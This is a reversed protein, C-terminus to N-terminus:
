GTGRHSRNPARGGAQCCPHIQGGLRRTGPTTVFPLGAHDIFEECGFQHAADDGGKDRRDGGHEDDENDGEEEADRCLATRPRACEDLSASSRESRGEHDAEYPDSEAHGHGILDGRGDDGQGHSNERDHCDRPQHAGDDDKEFVKAERAVAYVGRVVTDSPTHSRLHQDQSPEADHDHDDHGQPSHEQREGPGLGEPRTKECGSSQQRDDRSKSHLRTERVYERAHLQGEAIRDADVVDHDHFALPPSHLLDREGVNDHV